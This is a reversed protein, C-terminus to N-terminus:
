QRCVTILSNFPMEVKTCKDDTNVGIGYSGEIDKPDLTVALNVPKGWRVLQVKTLRTSQMEKLQDKSIHNPEILIVM